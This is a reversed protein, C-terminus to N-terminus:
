PWNQTQRMQQMRPVRRVFFYVLSGVFPLFFIILAWIVKENALSSEYLVCDVLMWIWFATGLLGFFGFVLFTGISFHLFSFAMKENRERFRNFEDHHREANQRFQASDEDIRKRFEEHRRESDQRFHDMPQDLKDHMQDMEKMQEDISERTQANAVQIVLFLSLGIFLIKQLHKM